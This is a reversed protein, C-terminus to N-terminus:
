QTRLIEGSQLVCRSPTERPKRELAFRGVPQELRSAQDNSFGDLPNKTKQLSEKWRLRGVFQALANVV